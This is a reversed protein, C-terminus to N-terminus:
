DVVAAGQSEAAEDERKDLEDAPDELVKPGGELDFSVNLVLGANLAHGPANAAAQVAKLPEYPEKVLM